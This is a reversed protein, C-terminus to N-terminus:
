ATNVSLYYGAVEVAYNMGAEITFSLRQGKTSKATDWGILSGDLKASPLYLSVTGSVASSLFFM